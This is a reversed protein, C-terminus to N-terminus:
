KKEEKKDDAAPTTGTPAAGAPATGEAPVVPTEVEEEAM